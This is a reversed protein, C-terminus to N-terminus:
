VYESIGQFFNNLVCKSDALLGRGVLPLFEASSLTCSVSAEDPEMPLFHFLDVPLGDGLDLGTVVIIGM